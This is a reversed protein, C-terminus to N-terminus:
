SSEKCAIGKSKLFQIPSQNSDFPFFYKSGDVHVIKISYGQPYVKFSLSANDKIQLSKFARLVINQNKLDQSDLFPAVFMKWQSKPNESTSPDSESCVASLLKRNELIVNKAGISSFRVIISNKDVLVHTLDDIGLDREFGRVAPCIQSNFRNTLVEKIRSASGNPIDGSIVLSLSEKKKPSFSKKAPLSAAAIAWGQTLPSGVSSEHIDAWNQHVPTSLNESEKNRTSLIEESFSDEKSARTFHQSATPFLERKAEFNTDKSNQIVLTPLSPVPEIHTKIELRRRLSEVEAKLAMNESKLNQIVDSSVSHRAQHQKISAIDAKMQSLEISFKNFFLEKLEEMFDQQFDVYSVRFADEVDGAHIFGESLPNV